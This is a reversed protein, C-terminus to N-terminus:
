GDNEHETHENLEHLVRETETLWEVFLQDSRTATIM